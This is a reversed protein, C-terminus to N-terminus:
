HCACKGSTANLATYPKKYFERPICPSPKLIKMEVLKQKEKRM